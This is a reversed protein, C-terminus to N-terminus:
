NEGFIVKWLREFVWPAMSNSSCISLAKEYFEKPHNKINDTSVLFQGGGAVFEFHEPSPKNFLQEYVEGINVPPAVHYTSVRYDLLRNTGLEVFSAEECTNIQEVINPAHDFPSGQVFVYSGCLEDYHKTIYWFFSAAERGYEELDVGKQVVEVKIDPSIGKTWSIDENLRAIVVTKLGVM